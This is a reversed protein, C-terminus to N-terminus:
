FPLTSSGLLITVMRNIYHFVVATGIFAPAEKTSFPTTALLPSGPTRTARAWEAVERLFADEIQEPAGDALAKSYDHGSSELVMISHADLCYPCRNLSSVAAAVVEKADRRGSGALLTERVAIWVGALLEPVPLHLTFPEVEAGFERKIQGLVKGSLTDAPASSTIYRITM